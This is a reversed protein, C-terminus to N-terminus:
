YVQALCYRPNVWIEHQKSRQAANLDVHHIYILNRQQFRNIALTKLEVINPNGIKYMYM